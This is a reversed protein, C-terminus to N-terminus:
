CKKKEKKGHLFVKGAGKAAQNKARRERKFAVAGKAVIGAVRHQITLGERGATSQEHGKILRTRKM